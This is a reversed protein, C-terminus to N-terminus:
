LVSVKLALKESRIRDRRIKRKALITEKNAAYYKNMYTRIQPRHANAYIINNANHNFKLQEATLCAVKPM